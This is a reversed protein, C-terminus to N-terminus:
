DSVSENPVMAIVILGKIETMDHICLRNQQNEAM